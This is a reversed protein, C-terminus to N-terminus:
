KELIKRLKKIRLLRNYDMYHREWNSYNHTEYNFRRIWIEIDQKIQGIFPYPTTIRKIENLCNPCRVYEGFYLFEDNGCECIISIDM